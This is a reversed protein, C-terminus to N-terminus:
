PRMAAKLEKLRDNLDKEANQAPMPGATAVSPRREGYYIRAADIIGDLIEGVRQLKPHASFIGRLSIRDFDAKFAAVANLKCPKDSGCTKIADAMHAADSALETFNVIVKSKAEGLNLSEILPGSAALIVRLQTAFDSAGCSQILLFASLIATTALKRM